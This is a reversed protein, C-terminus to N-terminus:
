VNWLQDLVPENDAVAQLCKEYYNKLLHEQSYRLVTIWEPSEHFESYKDWFFNAAVLQCVLILDMPPFALRPLNIIEPLWCLEYDRANGGFQLHYRPGSQGSKALDFHCRWMVRGSFERSPDALKEFVSPADLSERFAYASNSWVRLHTNQHTPPDNEDMWLVTSYVDVRPELGRVANSTRFRLPREPDILYGWPQPILHPDHSWRKRQDYQQKSVEVGIAAEELIIQADDELIEHFSRYLERLSRTIWQPNM